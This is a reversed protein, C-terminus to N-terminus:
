RFPRSVYRSGAMGFRWPQDVAKSIGIRPGSVVRVASDAASLDVAAARRGKLSFPARDLRAGNLAPTVGLAQGLRGPGACLIRPDQQHRRKMMRGIGATPELARILVGAGHGAERCVFNLCWHIGYSLYVYARGPPGFMVANRPTKGSFTHSAPDERDYAETEVIVGGVGDILLTMGILDRAVELSDRSFDISRLRSAGPSGAARM